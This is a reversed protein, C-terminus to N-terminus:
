GDRFLPANRNQKPATCILFGCDSAINEDDNKELEICIDYLSKFRKQDKAKSFAAAANFFNLKGLEMRGYLIWADILSEDLSTCLKSYKLANEFNFSRLDSSAKALFEPAVM